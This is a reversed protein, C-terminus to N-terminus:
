FAPRVSLKLVLPRGSRCRRVVAVARYQGAVYPQGARRVTSTIKTDEYVDAGIAEGGPGLFSVNARRGIGVSAIPYRWTVVRGSRCTPKPGGKPYLRAHLPHGRTEPHLGGALWVSRRVGPRVLAIRAPIGKIARVTDPQGAGACHPGITANIERGPTIPKSLKVPPSYYGGYFIANRCDAGQGASTAPWGAAACLLLVASAPLALKRM